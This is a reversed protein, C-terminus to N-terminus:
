NWFFLWVTIAFGTVIFPLTFAALAFLVAGAELDFSPNKENNM